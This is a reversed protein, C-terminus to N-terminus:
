AGVFRLVEFVLFAPWVIAKLFGLVGGWFGTSVSIYYVAAGIFGLFYACGGGGGCMNQPKCKKMKKVPIPKEKKAPM